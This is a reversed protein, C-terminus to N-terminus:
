KVCRIFYYDLNVRKKFKWMLKHGYLRCEQMTSVPVKSFQINANVVPGVPMLLGITVILTFM